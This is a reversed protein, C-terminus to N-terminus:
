VGEPVCLLFKPLLFKRKVGIWVSIQKQGVIVFYLPKSPAGCKKLVTKWDQLDVFSPTPVTEPHTHWVGLLQGASSTEKWHKIQRKQHSKGRFFYARRQEDGSMPTTIEDVVGDHTDIIRRGLLLGGSEPTDAALQRYSQFSLLIVNPIVLRHCEHSWINESYM